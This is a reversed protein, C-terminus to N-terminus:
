LCWAMFVYPPTSTCTWATKVEVSSPRSNDAEGELFSGRLVWQIPAHAPEPAQGSATFLFIGAVAPFRVGTTWGM